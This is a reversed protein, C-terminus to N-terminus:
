RPNDTAWETTSNEHYAIGEITLGKVFSNQTM